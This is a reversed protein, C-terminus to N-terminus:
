SELKLNAVKTSWNHTNCIKAQRDGIIQTVLKHKGRTKIHTIGTAQVVTHDYTTGRISNAKGRVRGKEDTILTTGTWHGAKTETILIYEM